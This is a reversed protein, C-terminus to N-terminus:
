EDKQNKSYLFKEINWVLDPSMGLSQRAIDTHLMANITDFMDLRAQMLENKKRLSKIELVAEQLLQTETTM